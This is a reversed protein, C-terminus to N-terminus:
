YRIALGGTVAIGSLDIPDFGSFDSSLHAHAWAYRVEGVLAVRPSLSVDTGAFAHAMPAWGHSDFQDSFVRLTQVDVFDGEQYFRYWMAGGGAGLYPAFRAPIWAFHGVARGPDVLYLKVSASLPLRRFETTQKIPQDNTDVFHRFESPTTSSSYGGGLVARVRPTVALDVDIGLNFASFDRHRLTLENTVFTFIESGAAAHGFGGRITVAGSPPKFLFGEGSSQALAPVVAALVGALVIACQTPQALHRRYATM